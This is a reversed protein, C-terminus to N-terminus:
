TKVRLMLFVSLLWVLAKLLSIVDESAVTSARFPL